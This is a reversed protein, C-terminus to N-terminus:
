AEIWLYFDERLALRFRGAVKNACGCIDGSIQHAILPFRWASNASVFYRCCSVANSFLAWYDSRSTVGYAPNRVTALTSRNRQVSVWVHTRCWVHKREGELNEEWRILIGQQKHLRQRWLQEVDDGGGGGGDTCCGMRPWPRRKFSRGATGKGQLMGGIEREWSGPMKM